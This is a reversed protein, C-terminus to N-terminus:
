WSGCEPNAKFEEDCPKDTDPQIEEPPILKNDNEVFVTTKDGYKNEHLEHACKTFKVLGAEYANIAEQESRYTGSLDPDKVRIIKDGNKIINYFRVEYLRWHERPVVNSNPEMGVWTVSVGLTENEYQRITCYKKNKHLEAWAARTISKGERNVYAAAM